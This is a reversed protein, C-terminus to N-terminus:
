DWGFHTQKKPRKPDRYGRSVRAPEVWKGRARWVGSICQAVGGDVLRQLAEEVELSSVNPTTQMHFYDRLTQTKRPRRRILDLIQEDLTKM